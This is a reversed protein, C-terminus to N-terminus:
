NSAIRVYLNKNRTVNRQTGTIHILLILIM